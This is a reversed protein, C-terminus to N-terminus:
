FPLSEKKFFVVLFSVQGQAMPTTATVAWPGADLLRKAKAPPWGKEESFSASVKIKVKRVRENGVPGTLKNFSSTRALGHDAYFANSVLKFQLKLEFVFWVGCPLGFGGCGVAGYKFSQLSSRV